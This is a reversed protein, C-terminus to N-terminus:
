VQLKCLWNVVAYIGNVTIVVASLGNLFQPIRKFM